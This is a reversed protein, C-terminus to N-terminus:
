DGKKLLGKLKKTFAGKHAVDDVPAECTICFPRPPGGPIMPREIVCSRCLYDHCRSCLFAAPSEKHIACHDPDGHMERLDAEQRAFIAALAPYSRVPMWEGEGPRVLDAEFIQGAAVMKELDTLRFPGTGLFASPNLPRLEWVPRDDAPAPPEPASDYPQSAAAPPLPVQPALTTAAPRARRPPPVVVTGDFIRGDPFIALSKGCSACRGRGGQKPIAEFPVEFPKGCGLCRFEVSQGM